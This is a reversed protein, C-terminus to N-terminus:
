VTREVREFYNGVLEFRDPFVTMEVLEDDTLHEFPNM